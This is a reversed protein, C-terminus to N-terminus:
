KIQQTKSSRLIFMLKEKNTGVQMDCAKVTHESYTLEGIRFLGYYATTFIARYLLLLYPQTALLDGLTSIILQFLPFKIPLRTHLTDNKLKCARTLANLLTQDVSVSIGAGFLVARIALIYSKVTSSKKKEEVLYGVFLVIRDEWHEPKKDLKIFFKNFTKWVSYYQAKTSDRHRDM